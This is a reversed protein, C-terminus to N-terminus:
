EHVSTPPPPLFTKVHLQLSKCGLGWIGNGFRVFNGSADTLPACVCVYVMYIYAGSPIHCVCGTYIQSWCASAVYHTLQAILQRRAGRGVRRAGRSSSWTRRQTAWVCHFTVSTVGTLGVSFVLWQMQLKCFRQGARQQFPSPSRWGLWVCFVFSLHEELSVQKRNREKIKM